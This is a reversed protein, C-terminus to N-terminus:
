LGGDSQDVFLYKLASIMAFAVLFYFAATILTLRVEMSNLVSKGTWFFIIGYLVVAILVFYIASQFFYKKNNETLLELWPNFMVFFIVGFCGSYMVLETSGLAYKSLFMCLLSLGLAFGFQVSPTIKKLMSSSFMEGPTRLNDESM